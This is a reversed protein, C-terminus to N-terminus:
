DFLHPQARLIRAWQLYGAANLHILDDQYYRGMPRGHEGLLVTTVDVWHTDDLPECYHRLLENFEAVVDAYIWKALSQKASLLYVPVGELRQRIAEHLARLNRLTSSASLGDASIDNEGFYLVVKAPRLPTLLTDLYHLGSANTGGGFGLNVVDLCNLDGAMGPWLRFSSSGYFAIPAAPVTRQKLRNLVALVDDEHRATGLDDPFQYSHQM